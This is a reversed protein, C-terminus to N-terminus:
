GKPPDPYRRGRPCMEPILNKKEKDSRLAEARFTGEVRCMGPSRARSRARPFPARVPPDCTNPPSRILAPRIPSKARLYLMERTFVLSMAVHRTVTRVGVGEVTRFACTSRGNM